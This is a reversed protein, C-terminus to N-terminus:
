CTAGRAPLNPTLSKGTTKRGDAAGHGVAFVLQPLPELQASSIVEDGRGGAARTAAKIGRGQGPLWVRLKHRWLANM